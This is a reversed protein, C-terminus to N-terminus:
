FVNKALAQHSFEEFLATKDTLKQNMLILKQFIRQCLIFQLKVHKCVKCVKSCCGNIYFVSLTISIKYLLRNKHSGVSVLIVLPPTNTRSNNRINFLINCYRNLMMIEQNRRKYIM